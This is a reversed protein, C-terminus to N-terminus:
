KASATLEDAPVVWQLAMGVLSAGFTIAGVAIARYLPHMSGTTKARFRGDGWRSRRALRSRALAQKERRTKRCV